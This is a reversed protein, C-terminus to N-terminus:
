AQKLRKLYCPLMALASVNSLNLFPPNEQFIKSSAPISGLVEQDRGSEALWLIVVM